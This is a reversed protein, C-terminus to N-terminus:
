RLFGYVVGGGRGVPPWDVTTSTVVEWGSLREIAGESVLPTDSGLDSDLEFTPPMIPPM